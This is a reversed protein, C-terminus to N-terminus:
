PETSRTQSLQRIVTDVDAQKGSFLFFNLILISRLADKFGDLAKEWPIEKVYMGYTRSQGPCDRMKISQGPTGSIIFNDRFNLFWKSM